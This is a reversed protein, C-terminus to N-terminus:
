DIRCDDGNCQWRFVPKTQEALADRVAQFMAATVAEGLQDGNDIDKKINRLISLFVNKNKEIEAENEGMKQASLFQLDIKSGDPIGLTREDPRVPFSNGNRYAPKKCNDGKGGYGSFLDKDFRHVLSFEQAGVSPQPNTCM